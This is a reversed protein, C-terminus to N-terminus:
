YGFIRRLYPPCGNGIDAAHSRSERYDNGLGMSRRLGPANECACGGQMTHSVMVCPAQAALRDDVAGLMFTQTGGGSAGSCGIRAPDVEPLSALFDLARISNWTQLGMLSLNWLQCAPDTAFAHGSRGSAGAFQTDNYGTMDYSFAVMGQMAFNACRAPTSAQPQNELRGGPWHGHPALVAPFPGAGRGKPRYLNGGLFFGPSTELAVKEITYGEREIRGTIRPNLPTKEPMPWLGCSVLVRERLERARNTWAQRNEPASFSRPTNLTRPAGSRQDALPPEPLAAGLAGALALGATGLCLVRLLTTM